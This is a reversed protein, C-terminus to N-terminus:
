KLAKEVKQRDSASMLEWYRDMLDLLEDDIADDEWAEVGQRARYMIFYMKFAQESKM